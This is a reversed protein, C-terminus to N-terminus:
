STPGGNNGGQYLIYPLIAGSWLSTLCVLCCRIIWSTTMPESCRKVKWGEETVISGDDGLCHLCRTYEPAEEPSSGEPQVGLEAELEPTVLDDLYAYIEDQLTQQEPTLEFDM